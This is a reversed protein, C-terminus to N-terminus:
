ASYCLLDGVERRRATGRAVLLDLHAATEFIALMQNFPDLDPLRRRRRTWPV